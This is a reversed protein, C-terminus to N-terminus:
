NGRQEFKVLENLNSLYIKELIKYEIKLSGITM